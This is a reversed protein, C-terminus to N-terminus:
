NPSLATFAAAALSRERSGVTSELGPGTKPATSWLLVGGGDEGSALPWQISVCGGALIEAFLPINDDKDTFKDRM